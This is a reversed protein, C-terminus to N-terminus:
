RQGRERPPTTEEPVIHLEEGSLRELDAVAKHYAALAELYRGRTEFFTRQADLVDLLGFKGLRYGEQTAQFVEQAAPLVDNQLTSVENTASVLNQYTDSLATSVRVEAARRELEAKSLRAYAEGIGGQNHDFLPLPLSFGLVFAGEKVENLYRVGGSVTLDPVAKSRAVEVQARRAEMEAVWRAIDPNKQVQVALAELSPIPTTTDLSGSVGEFLPTTSGWSAALRKKTAEYVTRAQQVQLRATSVTVRTRTEEIPSVKGAHVRASVTRQVQEALRLLDTTFALREATAAVDVFAKKAETLVDLRKVEYDWGTLERELGALRLRKARKGGLEILQSLQLTAEAARAGKTTSGTGGINELEASLAPNPLVGAQLTRAEAARLEFTFASLEPNRLLTLRLVDRLSLVGRPEEATVIVSASFAMSPPPKPEAGPARAVVGGYFISLAASFSALVKVNM